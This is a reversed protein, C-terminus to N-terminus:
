FFDAAGWWPTGHTKFKAFPMLGAVPAQGGGGGARFFFEGHVRFFPFKGAEAAGFFYKPTKKAGKKGLSFVNFIWDGGSAMFFVLIRGSPAWPMSKSHDQIRRVGAPHLAHLILSSTLRFSSSDEGRGGPGGLFRPSPRGCNTNKSKKAAGFKSRMEPMANKTNKRIKPGRPSWKPVKKWCEPM